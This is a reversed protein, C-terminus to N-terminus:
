ATRVWFPMSYYPPLNNHPQSGGVWSTRVCGYDGKDPANIDPANNDPANTANIHGANLWTCLDPYAIGSTAVGNMGNDSSHRHKPMEAVTLTHQAEGGTSGAKYTDGAALIFVDKKQEWTTGAYITNPNNQFFGGFGIPFPCGTVATGGGASKPSFRVIQEM